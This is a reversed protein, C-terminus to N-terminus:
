CRADPQGHWGKAYQKGVMRRYKMAGAEEPRSHAGMVIFDVNEKRAIRLIETYPIGATTVIRAKPYKELQKSYTNKLEDEVWQSMIRIM